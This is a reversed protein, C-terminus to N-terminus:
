RGLAGLFPRGLQPDLGLRVWDPSGVANPQRSHRGCCGVLARTSSDMWEMPQDAFTPVEMERSPQSFALSPLGGNGAPPDPDTLLRELRQRSVRSRLRWSRTWGEKRRTQSAKKRLLNLVCFFFADWSVTLQRGAQMCTAASCLQQPAVHLGRGQGAQRLVWLRVTDNPFSLFDKHAWALGAAAAQLKCSALCLRVVSMAHSAVSCPLRKQSAAGRAFGGGQFRPLQVFRIHRQRANPDPTQFESDSAPAPSPSHNRYKLQPINM